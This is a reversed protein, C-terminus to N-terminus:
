KVLVFQIPMMKLNKVIKEQGTFDSFEEPRLVHEIKKEESSLNESYPSLQDNM